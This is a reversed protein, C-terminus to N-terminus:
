IPWTWWHTQKGITVAQLSCGIVVPNKKQQTRSDVQPNGNSEWALQRAKQSNRSHLNASGHECRTRASLMGPMAGSNVTEWLKTLEDETLNVIPNVIPM